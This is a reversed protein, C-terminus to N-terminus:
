TSEKLVLICPDMWNAPPVPMKTVAEFRWLFRWREAAALLVRVVTGHDLGFLCLKFGQTQVSNSIKHKQKRRSSPMEVVPAARRSGVARRPTCSDFSFLLRWHPNSLHSLVSGKVELYPEPWSFIINKRQFGPNPHTCNPTYTYAHTHTVCMLWTYKEWRPKENSHFVKRPRM